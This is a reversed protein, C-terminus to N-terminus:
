QLRKKLAPLGRQVRGKEGENQSVSLFAEYWIIGRKLSDNDPMRALLDAYALVGASFSADLQAAQSLEELAKPDDKQRLAV